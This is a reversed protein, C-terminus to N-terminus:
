KSPVVVQLVEGFEIHYDWLTKEDDLDIGGMRLTFESPPLKTRPAVEKEKISAVSRRLLDPGPVEFRKGDPRQFHLREFIAEGESVIVDGEGIGQEGVTRELSLAAGAKTM